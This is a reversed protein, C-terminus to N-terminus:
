LRVYKKPDVTQGDVRYTFHLHAGRTNGADGSLAIVEGAEVNRATGITSLHAYGAVHGTDLTLLAYNGSRDNAGYTVRGAGVAYVPTGVAARLDVGNHEQWEGNRLRPGYDSTIYVDDLPARLRRTVSLMLLVGGLVIGWAKM